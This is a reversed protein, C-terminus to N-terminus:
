IWLSGKTRELHITIRSNVEVAEVEVAEAVEVEAIVAAMMAMLSVLVIVVLIAGDGDVVGVGAALLDVVM